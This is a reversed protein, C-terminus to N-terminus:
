SEPERTLKMEWYSYVPYRRALFIVVVLFAALLAISLGVDQMNDFPRVDPSYVPAVMLFKNLWIGVSIGLGIICMAVVSRNFISFILAGLPIFFCGALMAWYYPSYHGYAQRWLPDTEHPLNGFWIVFFQAWFFYMWLMVFATILMSLQRINRPGFRSETASFRGLAAPILMMAATAALVNGFWFHIPFVTSHWHPIIMMAFDWSLLTNCIIFSAIVWFSMLYLQREVGRNASPDAGPDAETNDPGDAIKAQAMDPRMAKVIYIASLGYFLLLGFLNRILLWDINLWASLHEDPSPSLWYFLDESSYYYILLFGAIAFPAFALTSLEAIRYYPKAWQAYVLRCLACFVVGAQSVGLLFLFSVILVLHDPRTTEVDAGYVPSAVGAAALATLVLGAVSGRYRGPTARTCENHSRVDRKHLTIINLQEPSM